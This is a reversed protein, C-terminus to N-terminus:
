GNSAIKKTEYEDSPSYVTNNVTGNIYNKKVIRNGNYDYIYQAIVQNNSCNKVQTMQNADNYTYCYAGDSTMNGNADYTYNRNAFAPVVASSFLYLFTFFLFALKTKAKRVSRWPIPLKTM